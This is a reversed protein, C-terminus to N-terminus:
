CAGVHEMTSSQARTSVPAPVIRTGHPGLHRVCRAAIAPRDVFVFWTRGALIRDNHHLRAVLVRKGQVWTGNRSNLDEVLCSEGERVIVFHQRSLSQDEVRIDALEGRGVVAAKESLGWRALQLGDDRIQYLANMSVQEGDPAARIRRLGEWAIVELGALLKVYFRGDEWLAPKRAPILLLRIM